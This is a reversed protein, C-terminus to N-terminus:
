LQVLRNETGAPIGTLVGMVGLGKMVDALAVTGMQGSTSLLYAAVGAVLPASSSTGSLTSTATDSSASSSIMNDGPAFIDVVSGYNSYSARADRITSAGVTIAGPSAAPSVTSADKNGNGAAVVVHIGKKVTKDIAMDVVKDRDTTVFSLSVVSIRNGAVHQSTVYQLGALISSTTGAGDDSLVKVAVLQANKAVGHLYGAALGACHTGHGSGDTTVNPFASFGWSARGGFTEHTTRIGTDLIYIDVDKGATTPDYTYNYTLFGPNQITLAESQTIRQLAWPVNRQTTTGQVTYIADEYIAEVDPNATLADIVDQSFKGSFSNSFRSDFDYKVATGLRFRSRLWAVHKRKNAKPKLTIIYSNAKKPGSVRQVQVRSAPAAFGTVILLSFVFITSVFQMKLSAM